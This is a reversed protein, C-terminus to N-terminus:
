IQRVGAINTYDRCETSQNNHGPIDAVEPKPIHLFKRDVDFKEYEKTMKLGTVKSFFEHRKENSIRARLESDSVDKKCHRCIYKAYSHPDPDLDPCGCTCTFLNMGAPYVYAFDICKPENIRVGWNAFNKKTLGVDGLLNNESWRKLISLIKTQHMLMESWNAMAPIYTAVMLHGGTIEYTNDDKRIIDGSIEHSEAIDPALRDSMVWEQRNDDIGEDDLAIKLAYQSYKVVLRNTGTGLEQVPIKHDKFADLVQIRRHPASMGWQLVVSAIDTKLDVPLANLRSRYIQDM